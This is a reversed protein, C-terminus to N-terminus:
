RSNAIFLSALEAYNKFTRPSSDFFVPSHILPRLSRLYHIADIRGVVTWDNQLFLHGVDSYVRKESHTIGLIAYLSWYTNADISDLISSLDTFWDVVFSVPVLDWLNTLSPFLGSDFWNLLANSVGDPYRKHFVKYNYTVVLPGKALGTPSLVIRERARSYSYDREVKSLEHRISEQISNLDMVTLRLGYKYSLHMSALKKADVRGKTLDYLGRFTDSISSLEKVLELSNCSIVRADNACRRALDGYVLNADIPLYSRDLKEFLQTYEGRTSPLANTSFPTTPVTASSHILSGKYLYFNSPVDMIWGNRTAFLGKTESFFMTFKHSNSIFPYGPYRAYEYDLSVWWVEHNVKTLEFRAGKYRGEKLPDVFDPWEQTYRLPLTDTFIPGYCDVWDRRSKEFFSTVTRTERSASSSLTVVRTATKIARNSTAVVDGVLKVHDCSREGLGNKSSADLFSKVDITKSHSNKSQVIGIGYGGTLFQNTSFNWMFFQIDEPNVIKVKM